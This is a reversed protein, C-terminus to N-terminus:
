LANLAVNLVDFDVENGTPLMGVLIVKQETQADQWPLIPKLFIKM